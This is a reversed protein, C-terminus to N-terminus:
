ETEQFVTSGDQFWCCLLDGWQTILIKLVNSLCALLIIEMDADSAPDVFSHTYGDHLSSQLRCAM